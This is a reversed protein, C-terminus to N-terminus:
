LRDQPLKLKACQRKFLLSTIVLMREKGQESTITRPRATNGNARWGVCVSNRNYLRPPFAKQTRKIYHLSLVVCADPLRKNRPKRKDAKLILSKHFFM